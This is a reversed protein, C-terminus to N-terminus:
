DISRADLYKKEIWGKQYICDYLWVYRIYIYFVFRIYIWVKRRGEDSTYGEKRKRRGYTTKEAPRTYITSTYIFALMVLYFMSIICCVVCEDIIWKSKSYKKPKRWWWVWVMLSTRWQKMKRLRRVRWVRIVNNKKQWEQTNLIYFTEGNKYTKKKNGVRKNKYM